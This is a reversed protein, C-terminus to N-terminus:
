AFACLRLFDFFKIFELLDPSRCPVNEKVEEQKRRQAKVHPM